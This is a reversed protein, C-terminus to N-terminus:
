QVIEVARIEEEITKNTQNSKQSLTEGCLGPQGRDSVRRGRGEQTSSHHIHVVTSPHFDRKM